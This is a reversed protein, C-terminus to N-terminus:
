KQVNALYVRLNSINQDIQYEVLWVISWINQRRVAAVDLAGTHHEKSILRHGGPCQAGFSNKRCSWRAM